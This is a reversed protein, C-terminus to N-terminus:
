FFIKCSTRFTECLTSATHCEIDVCICFKKSLGNTNSFRRTNSTRRSTRRCPYHFSCLCFLYRSGKKNLLPASSMSSQGEYSSSIESGLTSTEQKSSMASNDQTGEKSGWQGTTTIEPNNGKEKGSSGVPTVTTSERITSTSSITKQVTKAM